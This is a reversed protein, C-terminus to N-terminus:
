FPSGGAGHLQVRKMYDELHGNVEGVREFPSGTGLTGGMVATPCLHTLMSPWAASVPACGERILVYWTEDQDDVAYIAPLKGEM